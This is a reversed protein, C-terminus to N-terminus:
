RFSTDAAKVLKNFIILNARENERPNLVAKTPFGENHRVSGTYLALPYYLYTIRELAM